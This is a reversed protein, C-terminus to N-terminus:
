KLKPAEYLGPILMINHQRSGINALKQSISLEQQYVADNLDRIQNVLAVITESSRLEPYKVLYAAVNGPSIAKFISKEYNPYQVALYSKFQGTLNEARKIYTQENRQYKFIDQTDNVNNTYAVLTPILSGFFTFCFGFIIAACINGLFADESDRFLLAFFMFM